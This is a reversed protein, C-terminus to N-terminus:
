KAKTLNGNAIKNSIELAFDFDEPVEYLRELIKESSNDYSTVLLKITTDEFNDVMQSTIKTKPAKTDVDLETGSDGFYISRLSRRELVNLFQKVEVEKGSPSTHKITKVEM